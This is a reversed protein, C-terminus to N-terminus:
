YRLPAAFIATGSFRRLGLPLGNLNEAGAGVIEFSTSMVSGSPRSVTTVPTEPEPLDVSTLSM